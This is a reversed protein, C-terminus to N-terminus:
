EEEEEDQLQGEDVDPDEESGVDEEVEEDEPGAHEDKADETQQDQGEEQKLEKGQDDGEEDQGDQAEDVGNQQDRKSKKSSGKGQALEAGIYERAKDLQGELGLGILVNVLKVFAHREEQDNGGKKQDRSTRLLEAVEDAGKFLTEVDEDKEKSSTKTLGLQWAYNLSRSDLYPYLPALYPQINRCFIECAGPGIGKIPTLQAFVADKAKSRTDKEDKSARVAEDLITQLNIADDEDDDGCIERLGTIIDMLQSATKEKHQTKAKWLVERRGDEGIEEISKPTRLSYPKNFLVKITRLSLTHSIPSSLLYSTILTQFPTLKDSPYTLQDSDDEGEDDNGTSDKQREPDLNKPPVRGMKEKPLDMEGKGVPIPPYALQFADDSLLWKVLKTKDETSLEQPTSLEQREKKTPQRRAKKADDNKGDTYASRKTGAKATSANKKPPM